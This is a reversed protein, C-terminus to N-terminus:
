LLFYVALTVAMNQPKFGIQPANGSDIVSFLARAEIGIKNNYGHEVGGGLVVGADYEKYQPKVDNSFEGEFAIGIPAGTNTGSFQADLLYGGFVGGSVHYTTEARQRGFVTREPPTTTFQLLIPLQGYLLETRSDTQFDFGRLTFSDEYGAGLLAISPEAQLRFSETLSQRVVLGANYGVVINPKLDLEIDEVAFRFNNLHSSTNMGATVGVGIRQADVREVPGPLIFYILFLSLFLFRLSYM